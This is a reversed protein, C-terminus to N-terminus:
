DNRVNGRDQRWDNFVAPVALVFNGV